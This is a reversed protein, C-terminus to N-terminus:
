GECRPARRRKKLPGQRLRDGQAQLRSHEGGALRAEARVLAAEAAAREGRDLYVEALWLDIQTQQYPSPARERATELRALAAALDGRGRAALGLNAHYNAIMEANDLKEAEVMGRTFWGEAEEWQQEALAIEGRTSNLWQRVVNLARAEALALGAEIHEHAAKLDGLLMAHYAANNHGLYSSVGMAPRAVESSIP